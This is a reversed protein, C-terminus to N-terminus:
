LPAVDSASTPVDRDDASESREASRGLYLGAAVGGVLPPIGFTVALYWPSDFLLLVAPVPAGALVGGLLTGTFWNAWPRTRVMVWALAGVTTMGLCWTPITYILSLLFMGLVSSVPDLSAHEHGASLAMLGAWAAVVSSTVVVGIATAVLWAMPPMTLRGKDSM